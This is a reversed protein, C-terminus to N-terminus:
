GEKDEKKGGVHGSIFDEVWEEVDEAKHTLWEWWKEKGTEKPPEVGTVSPPTPRVPVDDPM